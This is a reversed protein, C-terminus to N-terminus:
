ESRTRKLWDGFQQGAESISSGAQQFAASIREGYFSSAADAEERASGEQGVRLYDGRVIRDYDGEHVWDLLLRVRRVPMPHSLRLDQFLKTMRELGSGGESYDM